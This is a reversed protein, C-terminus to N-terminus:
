IKLCGILRLWGMVYCDYILCLKKKKERESEKDRARAHARKRQSKQTIKASKTHTIKTSAVGLVNYIASICPEKVFIYPEKGSIYPKKATTYTEKASIYPEKTSAYPEQAFPDKTSAYPEKAAGLASFTSTYLEKLVRESRCM